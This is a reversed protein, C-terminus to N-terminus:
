SLDYSKIIRTLQDLDCCLGSKMHIKDQLMKIQYNLIIFIYIFV